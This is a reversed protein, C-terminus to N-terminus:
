GLDLEAVKRLRREHRENKSFSTQLWVLAIEKAKEEDIYDAPLALVNIDDDARATKVHDSDWSLGCRINNFKNAAVCVGVGNRCIVIAKNNYNEQVKKMTPIVYDPYDDSEDYRNPGMDIIEVDRGRLYEVLANKLRFGAHDSTIYIM